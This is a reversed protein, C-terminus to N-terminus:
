SDRGWWLHAGRLQYTLQSPEMPNTELDTRQWPRPPAAALGPLRGRRWGVGDLRLEDKETMRRPQKDSALAHGSERRGRPGPTIQGPRAAVHARREPSPAGPHGSRRM